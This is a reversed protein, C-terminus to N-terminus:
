DKMSDWEKKAEEVTKWKKEMGKTLMDEAEFVSTAPRIRDIPKEYHLYKDSKSAGQAYYTQLTSYNTVM